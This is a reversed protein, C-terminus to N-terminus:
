NRKEKKRTVLVFTLTVVAYVIVTGIAIWACVLQLETLISGLIVIGFLIAFFTITLILLVTMRKNLSM